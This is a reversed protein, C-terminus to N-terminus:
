GVAPWESADPVAPASPRPSGSVYDPNEQLFRFAELLKRLSQNLGPYRGCFSEVDIAEGAEYLRLYEDYAHDMLLSHQALDALGDNSLVATAGSGPDSRLAPGDSLRPRTWSLRTM